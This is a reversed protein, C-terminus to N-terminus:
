HATRGIGLHRQEYLVQFHGRKGDGLIHKLSHSIQDETFYGLERLKGYMFSQNLEM